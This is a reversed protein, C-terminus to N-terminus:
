NSYTPPGLILHRQPALFQVPYKSLFGFSQTIIIKNMILLIKIIINLIVNKNIYQIINGLFFLIIIKM